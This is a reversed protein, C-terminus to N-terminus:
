ETRLAKAPDVRSARRAPAYGAAAAVALLVLAASAILVPNTPSVGFLLSQLVRTSLLAALVGVAVGLAALRLSQAVVMRSVQAAQAGLAMRIAIEGRRQGVVYSIVGYLGVVSLFLAMAAAIGLLLMTFSRKSMSKAVLTNMTHANAIAAQPELETVIRRIAPTLGIPNGARTRVALNMETPAGWLTADPIPLMPFYVVAVPPKDFGEGLIDEAVGSIRYFPPTRGYYRLGKGLASQDPWIRQAFARSVVMTGDHANMGSWTLTQGNVRMGMAEFFGPSVMATPPCDGRANAPDPAEITVGTCGWTSTLPIKESFGVATVGPLARIRAALREYFASTRAYSTTDSQRPSGYRAAPLAVTMTLVGRPDFGPRVARLNRFSSVMLGAATLLVLSLAVQTVVLAGRAGNRRRSTTLGRGGERLLSLDLAPAGLVPLLALAFAALLAGGIAFAIGVGSLHIEALRPLNTPAVALLVRLGFAALGVAVVAAGIAILLSEALYQLALHLRGAGLAARVAMERRRADIRVLFLNSLNAGAILLVLLVSAFLIWLARTMVEGVVVDRLPRVQTHFGTDRMFSQSEATPFLEPLRATLPGLERQADAATFGPRLRGIGNWTHNNWAPLSPDAYAPAWLDVQVDPLQASRPVVGVITMPFGDVDITRGVISPDGGFRRQWYGHGLVLVTPRRSRNDEPLLLRGLEPKVRLVNFLSATVMATQAREAPRGSADGTVTLQTNEYAGIDDFARSNAKFYFVEHRALEWLTDGKMKPVPSTLEVLQDADRYPLPSLVVADLMTFIATAAGLGLGLTLVATVTFGRTRALTRAAQRTERVFADFIDMRRQEQIIQQDIAAAQKRYTEIDGFRRRAQAEADARSLGRAMLEAIRGELHFRLEEDVARWARSRTVPLRFVRRLQWRAGDGSM